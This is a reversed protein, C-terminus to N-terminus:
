QQLEADQLLFPQLFKTYTAARCSHQLCFAHNYEHPADSSQCQAAQLEPKAAQM